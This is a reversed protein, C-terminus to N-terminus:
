QVRRKIAWRLILLIESCLVMASIAAAYPLKAGIATFLASIGFAVAMFFSFSGRGIRWRLDQHGSLFLLASALLQGAVSKMDGGLVFTM